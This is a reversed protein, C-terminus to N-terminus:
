RRIDESSIVYVAAPVDKAREVKKSASYVEMQMLEELSMQLIDEAVLLQCQGLVFLSVFLARCPNM